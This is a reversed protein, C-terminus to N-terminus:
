LTGSLVWIALKQCDPGQSEIRIMAEKYTYDYAKSESAWPDDNTNIHLTRDVKPLKDLALRIDKATFKNILSDMYLM